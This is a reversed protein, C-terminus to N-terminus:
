RWRRAAGASVAAPRLLCCSASEAPLAEHDPMRGAASHAHRGGGIQIDGACWWRVVIRSARRTGHFGSRGMPWSASYGNRQAPNTTFAQVPLPRDSRQPPFCRADTRGPWHASPAVRSLPRRRASKLEAEAAQAIGAVRLREGRGARAGLGAALHARARGARPTPSQRWGCWPLLRLRGIDAAPRDGGRGRAALASAAGALPSTWRPACRRATLAIRTDRTAEFCPRRRRWRSRPWIRAKGCCRRGRPWRWGTPAGRRSLGWALHGPRGRDQLRENSLGARHPIWAPEGSATERWPAAMPPRPAAIAPQIARPRVPM